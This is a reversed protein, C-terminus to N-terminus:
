LSSCQLSPSCAPIRVRTVIRTKLTKACTTTATALYPASRDVPTGIVVRFRRRRFNTKRSGSAGPVSVVFKRVKMPSTLAIHTVTASLLSASAPKIRPVDSCSPRTAAKSTPHTACWKPSTRVFVKLTNKVSPRRRSTSMGQANDQGTGM